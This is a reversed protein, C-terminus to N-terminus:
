RCRNCTVVNLEAVILSTNMSQVFPEVQAALPNHHTTINDRPQSEEPADSLRRAMPIIRGIGM